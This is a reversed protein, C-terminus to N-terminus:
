RQQLSRSEVTSAFYQMNIWHAVVLPATMVLELVSGDSDKTYDYSHLFSRGDLSMGETMTRPAAIFAANGALGWEPRVESWDRSKTFLSNPDVSPFKGSRECRNRMGAEHAIDKLHMLDFQHTSPVNAEDFWQLSDTTTNHVAAVFHTDAPIDQGRQALENRVAPDNLLLAAFRANAEGGHGGCAGCDLSAALPNNCTQSM